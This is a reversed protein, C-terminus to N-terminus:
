NKKSFKKLIIENGILDINHEKAYNDKMKDHKKVRDLNNEEGYHYINKYHHEGDYEILLNYDPLYFDYRLYSKDKLNNFTKEKKYKIKNNKLFDKIKQEGITIKRHKSASIGCLSCGYNSNLFHKYHIKTKDHESCNIILYLNRDERLIDILELNNKNNKNLENIKKNVNEIIEENSIRNRQISHEKLCESCGFILKPNKKEVEFYTHHKNCYFKGFWRNNIKKNKGENKNKKFVDILTFRENLGKKFFDKIDDETYTKGMLDKKANKVVM